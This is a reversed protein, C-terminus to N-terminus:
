LIMLVNVINWINIIGSIIVITKLLITEKTKFIMKYLKIIGYNYIPILSYYMIFAILSDQFKIAKLIPNLESQPTILFYTILADILIFVLLILWLYKEKM